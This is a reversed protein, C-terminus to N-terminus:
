SQHVHCSLVWSFFSARKKNYKLACDISKGWSLHLVPAWVPQVWYGREPITPVAPHRIIWASADQAGIRQASPRALLTSLMYVQILRQEHCTLIKLQEQRFNQNYIIWSTWWYWPSARAITTQYAMLVALRAPYKSIITTCFISFRLFASYPSGGASRCGYIQSRRMTGENKSMALVIRNPVNKPARVGKFIVLPASKTGDGLAALM